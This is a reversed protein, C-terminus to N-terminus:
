RWHRDKKALLPLSLEGFVELVELAPPDFVDFANFFTAGSASLADPESFAEERRWETGLVAGIPGGPLEFFSSSDSSIYALANYQEARDSLTADARIYDLAAQSPAGHSHAPRTGSKRGARPKDQHLVFLAFGLM